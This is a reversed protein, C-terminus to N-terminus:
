PFLRQWADHPLASHIREDAEASDQEPEQMIDSVWQLLACGKM